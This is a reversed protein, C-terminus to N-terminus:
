GGDRLEDLIARHRSAAADDGNREYLRILYDRVPLLTANFDLASEAAEIADRDRGLNAFIDARLSHVRADEPNIELLRQSLELASDWEAALYRITLLNSLATERVDVDDLAREFFPRARDPSGYQMWFAGLVTQVTGDGPHQRAIPGLTEVIALPPHGGRKSGTLWM